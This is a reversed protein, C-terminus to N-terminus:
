RIFCCLRRKPKGVPIEDTGPNNANLDEHEQELKNPDCKEEVLGVRLQSHESVDDGIKNNKELWKSAGSGISTVDIHSVEVDVLTEMDSQFHKSKDNESTLSYVTVKMPQGANLNAMSFSPVAPLSMIKWQVFDVYATWLCVTYTDETNFTMREKGSKRKKIAKPDEYIAGGLIPPEDGAKTVAIIDFSTEIPFAFHPDEYKGEALEDESATEKGSLSYSFSPSKMRTFRLGGSLSSGALLGLKVPEDYGISLYVQNEPIKKFKMQLQIEFRRKKPRLYNSVKDNSASGGTQKKKTTKEAKADADSTRILILLKGSYLENDIPMPEGNPSVRENTLNDIFYLKELDPHNQSQKMPLTIHDSAKM